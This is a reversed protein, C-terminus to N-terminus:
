ELVTINGSIQFVGADSRDYIGYIMYIYVGPIVPEGMYMADWAQTLPVRDLIVQGWRNYVSWYGTKFRCNSIPKIEKNIQDKNFPTFANAMYIACPLCFIREGKITDFVTACNSKISLILTDGARLYFNKGVPVLSNRWSYKWSPNLQPLDMIEFKGDCVERDAPLIPTPTSDLTVKFDDSETGCQNIVAINYNGIKTFTRAFNTDGDNWVYKCKKQFVNVDYSVAADCFLTDRIDFKQPPFIATVRLSDNRSGCRNQTNLIYLGPKDINKSTIAEGTNWTYKAPLRKSDVQKGDVFVSTVGNSCVSDLGRIRKEPSYYDVIKFSDSRSGCLNSIRVWYRGTDRLIVKATINGTSWLYRCNTQSVDFEIAKKIDCYSTDKVDFIQPKDLQIVGITDWRSGCINSTKVWYKGPNNAQLVSDKSGDLWQYTAPRRMSDRQYANVTLIKLGVCLTDTKKLIKEPSLKQSLVFTDSVTGCYNSLSLWYKGPSTILRNKSTSGDDWKYNAPANITPSSWFVSKNCFLSDKISFVTLPLVQKVVISDLISDCKNSTKLYYTGPSTFTRIANTDGDSWRYKLPRTIYNYQKASVTVKGGVCLSDILKLMRKPSYCPVVCIISRRMNLSNVTIGNLTPYNSGNTLVDTCINGSYNFSKRNIVSINNFYCDLKSCPSSFILTINQSINNSYGVFVTTGNSLLGVDDQSAPLTEFSETSSSVNNYGWQGQIVGTTDLKILIRKNVGGSIGASGGTIWLSGDEFIITHPYEYASTGYTYQWIFSFNAPNMQAVVIDNGNGNSNTSGLLFITGSNSFVADTFAVNGSVSNGLWVKSYSGDKNAFFVVGRQSTGGGSWSTVLFDGYSKAAGKTPILRLGHSGSFSTNDKLTIYKLFKYNGNSDLKGFLLESQSSGLRQISTGIGYIDNNVPDVYVDRFQDNSNSTHSFSPTTRSWQLNGKNDFFHLSTMASSLSPVYSQASVVVGGSNTSAASIPYGGENGNDGFHKFMLLKGTDNFRAIYLQNGCSASSTAYGVVWFGGKVVCISQHTTTNLVRSSGSVIETFQVIKSATNSNCIGQASINLCNLLVCMSAFWRHRKNLAKFFLKM